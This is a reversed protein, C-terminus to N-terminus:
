WFWFCNELMAACSEKTKATLDASKFTWNCIELVSRKDLQALYIGKRYPHPIFKRKLFTVDPDLLSRSVVIQGTKSADTLKIGYKWLVQSMVECNFKSIFDDSVSMILDDGYTILKVNDHYEKTTFGSELFSYLVYLCNVISNIITTLPHGSPSGCQVKYILNLMLHYSFKTEECMCWRVLENIESEDGNFKYWDIIIEFAKHVCLSMLTPGFKTYDAVVINNSINLLNTALSTWELSNCDIGIAHDAKFRAEQYAVAFDMFYQRCQITFDVPSISFIRTKGPQLVKEKPLKQDKLCDTFVTCPVIGRERMKEKTEMIGVLKPNISNLKWGTQIETLDFLWRKDSAGAPRDAVLPYGESTSFELSDYHELGHFGMVATEVDLKGVNPRLPTVSSLIVNKYYEVARELIQIKFPMPTMCHFSCGILMPSFPDNAIRPDKDNLLPFDYTVPNIENVCETFCHKSERPAHHMLKNSVTGCNLVNFDFKLKSNQVPGLQPEVFDVPRGAVIDQTIAMITEKCIPEAFGWKGDKTGAVHIGIIPSSTNMTTAVISGCLGAQSLPYEYVVELKTDPYKGNPIVLTRRFSLPLSHVTTGRKDLHEFVKCNSPINSSLTAPIFLNRIDKFYPVYDPLVLCIFASESIRVHRFDTINVTQEVGRCIITAYAVDANSYEFYYHDIILAIRQCLGLCRLTRMTGNQKVIKLFFSNTNMRSQLVNEVDMAMQGSVLTKPTIAVKAATPVKLDYAMQGEAKKQGIQFFTKVKDNISVNLRGCGTQEVYNRVMARSENDYPVLNLKNGLFSAVGHAATIFLAFGIVRLTQKLLWKGARILHYKWGKKEAEVVMEAKNAEMQAHMDETLQKMRKLFATTEDNNTKLVFYQPVVVKLEGDDILSKQRDFLGKHKEKWSEMAMKLFRGEERKWYCSGSECPAATVWKKLDGPDYFAQLQAGDKDVQTIIIESSCDHVLKVYDIDYEWDPKFDAHNCTENPMQGEIKDLDKRLFETIMNDKYRTNDFIIEADKIKSNINILDLHKKYREITQEITENADPVFRSAASLRDNYQRLEENYFNKFRTTIIEVLEKFSINEREFGANEHVASKFISFNIYEYNQKVNDEMDRPHVNKYKDNKRADIVMDRRRLWAEQSTCQSVHPHSENALLLVCLPNYRIHKEEIAAQPPNFVAKSKLCFLEAMDQARAEPTSIQLFDDFLVVPQSRCGNWYQNGSTRTFIKEGYSKYDIATLIENVIREAMHSKGINSEGTISLVWPEFRVPPSIKATALKDRLEIIKNCTSIFIPSPRVDSTLYKLKYAEGVVAAQYVRVNMQPDTMVADTNDPHLLETCDEVWAKFYDKEEDLTLQLSRRPFLKHTVYRLVKQVMELNNRFFITMQNCGRAVSSMGKFLGNTFDPLNKTSIKSGEAVVGTIGGILTALLAAKDGPELRLNEDGMQPEVASSDGGTETKDPTVPTTTKRDIKTWEKIHDFVNKYIRTLVDILKTVVSTCILGLSVLVGIISVAFTTASPNILLHMVHTFSSFILHKVDGGVVEAISRIYDWISADQKEIVQAVQERTDNVLNQSFKSIKSDVTVDVKQKLSMKDWKIKADLESSFQQVTSEPLKISEIKKYKLYCYKFLDKPSKAFLKEFKKKDVTKAYELMFSGFETSGGAAVCVTTFKCKAAQQETSGSQLSEFGLALYAKFTNYMQLCDEDPVTPVKFSDLLGMQPEIEEFDHEAIKIEDEITSIEFVPPFGIFCSLAMDDGFSYFIDVMSQGQVQDAASNFSMFLYGLTKIVSEIKGVDELPNQLLGLNTPLYFPIELCITNNIALNQACIAYGPQLMHSTNLQKDMIIVDNGKLEQDFVHQFYVMGKSDTRFVIRFRLSGRFFRYASCIYGITGDRRLNEVFNTEKIDLGDPKLPILIGRSLTNTENLIEPKFSFSKYHQYRRCVAKLSTVREGFTMHGSSTSIMSDSSTDLIIPEDMQAVVSEIVPTWVIDKGDDLLKIYDNDKQRILWALPSDAYLDASMHRVFQEAQEQTGFPAGYSYADRDGNVIFRVLFQLVGKGNAYELKGQVNIRPYRYEIEKVSTFGETAKYVIKPQLNTFQSIHDSGSGYRFVLPDAGTYRWTGVAFEKTYGGSLKTRHLGNKDYSIDFSLGIRPNTMLSVEFSPAARIYVNVYCTEPVVSKNVVLRNLVALYIKGPPDIKSRVVSSDKKSTVPWWPKDAIFPTRFIFSDQTELDITTNYMSKIKNLSDEATLTYSRRPSYGMILSGVQFASHVLEIKVEIQGRWFAFLNALNHVPTYINCSRTFEGQSISISEYGTQIPSAELTALVFGDNHSTKWEYTNLLGWQQKVFDISMEDVRTTSGSPHPTQGTPQLRMPNVLDVDMDGSAWNGAAIPAIPVSRNVVPPNDRDPDPIFMDMADSAFNVIKKAKILPFMQPEVTFQSDDRPILGSFQSNPFAVYLTCPIVTTVDGSALLLPNLVTVRLNGLDAFNFDSDKKYMSLM